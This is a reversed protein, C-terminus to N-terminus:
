YGSDEIFFGSGIVRDPVGVGNEIRIGKDVRVTVVGQIMPSLPSVNGNPIKGPQGPFLHKGIESVLSDDGSETARALWVALMERNMDTKEPNAPDLSPALPPHVVARSGQKGIADPSASLSRMFVIRAATHFGREQLSDAQLRLIKAEDISGPLSLNELIDQPFFSKLNETTYATALSRYSALAENWAKKGIEIELRSFISAISARALGPLTAPDLLEASSDLGSIRSLWALVAEPDTSVLAELQVANLQPYSFSKAASSPKSVVSSACSVTSVIGAILFVLFAAPFGHHISGKGPLSASKAKSM